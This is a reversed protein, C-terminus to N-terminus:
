GGTFPPMLTVQAGEALPRDLEAREGDVLASFVLRRPAGLADVLDGVSAGDAVEIQSQAAQDGRPLYSRM